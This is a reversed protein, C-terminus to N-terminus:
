CWLLLPVMAMIHEEPAPWDSAGGKVEQWDISHCCEASDRTWLQQTDHRRLINRVARNSKATDMRTKLRAQIRMIWKKYMNHLLARIYHHRWSFFSEENDYLIAFVWKELMSKAKKKTGKTLVQPSMGEYHSKITDYKFYEVLHTMSMWAPPVHARGSKIM